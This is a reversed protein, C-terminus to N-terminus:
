ASTPDFAKGLEEQKIKSITSLPDTFLDRFSMCILYVGLLQMHGVYNVTYNATTMFTSFIM